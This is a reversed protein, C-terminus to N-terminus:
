WSARYTVSREETPMREPIQVLSVSFGGGISEPESLLSQQPGAKYGPAAELWAIAREFIELDAQRQYQDNASQGFFFGTTHPLRREEIAKIINMMSAVDLEISQCEDRGEGFAEVIYGHLDPHKRWYGLDLEVHNVRFGDEMRPTDFSWFFKRGRLYMDLGM